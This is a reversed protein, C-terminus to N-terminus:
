LTRVASAPVFANAGGDWTIEYHAGTWNQITAPFERGDTWRAIVRTGPALQAPPPPPQQQVAQQQQQQQEQLKKMAAQKTAEKLATFDDDSLSLALDGVQVTAGMSSLQHNIGDTTKGILSHVDGMAKMVGSAAALDAFAEGAHRLAAHQLASAFADEGGAQALGAAWANPDRVIVQLEGICRPHVSLRTTKDLVTGVPGGFRVPTM